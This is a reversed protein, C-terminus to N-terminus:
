LTGKGGFGRVTFENQGTELASFLAVAVRSDLTAEREGRRRGILIPRMPERSM